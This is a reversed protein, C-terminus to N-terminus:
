KLYCINHYIALRALQDEDGVPPGLCHVWRLALGEGLVARDQNVSKESGLLEGSAPRDVVPTYLVGTREGGFEIHSGFLFRVVLVRVGPNRFARVFENRRDRKAIQEGIEPTRLLDPIEGFLDEEFFIALAAAGRPMLVGGIKRPLSLMERIGPDAEFGNGFWIRKLHNATGM